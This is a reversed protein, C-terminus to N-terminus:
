PAEADLLREVDESTVMRDCKVRPFGFRTRGNKSTALKSPVAERELARRLLLNVAGSVTADEARAVAKAAKYLDPELNLTLRMGRLHHLPAPSDLHAARGSYGRLAVAVPGVAASNGGESATLRLGPGDRGFDKKAFNRKSFKWCRKSAGPASRAASVFRSSNIAGFM